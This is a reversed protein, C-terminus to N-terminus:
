SCAKDFSMCWVELPLRRCSFTFGQQSKSFCLVNGETRNRRGCAFEDWM